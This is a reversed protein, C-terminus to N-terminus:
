VDQWTLRLVTIQDSDKLYIKIFNPGKLDYNTLGLTNNIWDVIASSDYGFFSFTTWEREKNETISRSPINPIYPAYVMTIDFEHKSKYKTIVFDSDIINTDINVGM